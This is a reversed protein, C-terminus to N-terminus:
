PCVGRVSQGCCRSNIDWNVDDSDFYLFYANGSDDTGLSSSWYYGCSGAYNSYGTAPLFISNGNPGKVNYGNVGNLTTWTWTCEDILEQMEAKTPMRWSGGMNVAAADDEPDLVTKNDITGYYSGTCYKTMENSGNCWKYSDWYYYTKPTTEGWAFYVGYEEPSYAGVNCTAWKVSLGLDVYDMCTTIPAFLEKWVGCEEDGDVVIFASYTVVQGQFNIYHKRWYDEKYEYIFPLTIEMMGGHFDEVEIRIKNIGDLLLVFGAKDFDKKDTQCRFTIGEETIVADLTTVLIFNEENVSLCSQLCVAVVFLLGITYNKITKM